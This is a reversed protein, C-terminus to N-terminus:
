KEIAWCEGSPMLWVRRLTDVRRGDIHFHDDTRPNYRVREAEAPIALFTDTGLVFYSSWFWAFVSRNGGEYRVRRVKKSELNPQKIVVGELYAQPLHIARGDAGLMTWCGKNLNKHFRRRSM